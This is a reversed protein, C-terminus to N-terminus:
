LRRRYHNWCTCEAKLDSTNVEISESYSLDFQQQLMTQGTLNPGSILMSAEKM